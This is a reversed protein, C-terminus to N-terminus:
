RNLAVRDRSVSDQGQVVPGVIEGWLINDQGKGMPETMFVKVFTEVPLADTRGNMVEGADEIAGCNLVAAHIIRRDVGSQSPGYAHCQPQGEEPTSSQSGYTLSGPICFNDIEWRYLAYRSPPRSPSSTKNYYNLSYTVDEITIVPMYNHNVRMYEVFDWNGNGMRGGSDTCDGREFCDDRPLGFADDNLKINCVDNKKPTYGKVVNAAPAYAPDSKKSKMSGQYIDFRTNFGHRMSSINGPRLHVGASKSMCISPTDVAVSDRLKSAGSSGGWPDLYGFNGPGYQGNGGPFKFKIQRRRFDAMEMADYISNQADDEFPNCIFVPAVGCVSQDFGATAKASMSVSTISKVFGQPFITSVSQPVVDVEVYRASSPELTELEPGATQYDADPIAKLYRVSKVAVASAGGSGFKQDNSVLTNQAREARSLSDSRQDLEAAMARSLADAAAQLDQDMNYMRAADVSLAAGGLMVPASLAAWIAMGGGTHRMFKSPFHTRQKHDLNLM